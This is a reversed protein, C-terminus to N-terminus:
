HQHSFATEYIVVVSVGGGALADLEVALDVANENGFLAVGECCLSCSHGPLREPEAAASVGVGETAIFEGWCGSFVSAPTSETVMDTSVVVM